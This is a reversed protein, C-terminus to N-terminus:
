DYYNTYDGTRTGGFVTKINEVSNGEISKLNLNGQGVLNQAESGTFQGNIYSGSVVEKGNTLSSIQNANFKNGDIKGSASVANAIQETSWTGSTFNVDMEGEFWNNWPYMSNSYYGNLNYTLTGQLNRMADIPTPAGILGNMYETQMPYPSSDVDEYMSIYVSGYSVDDEIHYTYTSDYGGTVNQESDYSYGSLNSLYASGDYGNSGEGEKERNNTGAYINEVTDGGEAVYEYNYVRGDSYTHSGSYSPNWSDQDYYGDLAVTIIKGDELVAKLQMSENVEDHELYIRALMKTTEEGPAAIAPFGQDGSYTNFSMLGYGMFEAEPMQSETQKIVDGGFKSSDFQPNHFPSGGGFGPGGSATPEQQGLYTDIGCWAGWGKLDNSSDCTSAYTTSTFLAASSLIAAAILSKTFKVEM